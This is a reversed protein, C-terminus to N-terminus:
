SEDESYEDAVQQAHQLEEILADVEDEGLASSIRAPGLSFTVQAVEESVPDWIPRIALQGEVWEQYVEHEAQIDISPRNLDKSPPVDDVGVVRESEDGAGDDSRSSGVLPLAAAAGLFERRNPDSM